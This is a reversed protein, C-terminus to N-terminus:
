KRYKKRYILATLYEAHSWALPIAYRIINNSSKKRLRSKIKEYTKKMHFIEEVIKDFDLNPLLIEPDFEKKFDIGTKWENKIFDRFRQETSVHEPLYGLKSSYPNILNLIKNGENIRGISFYHQALIASYQLWPGAGAHNHVALDTTQLPLYRQILGLEKDWLEKRIFNITKKTVKKPRFNFYFPSMLTIDPRLDPILNENLKAIFRNDHIFLKKINKEFDEKFKKFERLEKKYKTITYLDEVLKLANWYAFNVWLTYGKEITSEHISTTSYFLGKEKDFYNEITFNLGNIIARVHKKENKIKKKLKKSTLLYTILIAVGHAINDEQKYISRERGSLAYRQGWHGNKSQISLTFKDIGELLNFAKENFKTESCVLSLAKAIAAGDRLYFFPHRSQKFTALVATGRRVERCCKTIINLHFNIEQNLDKFQKM